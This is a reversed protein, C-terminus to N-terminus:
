ALADACREEVAKEDEQDQDKGPVEVEQVAEAVEEDVLVEVEVDDAADGMLVVAVDGVPPVVEADQEEGGWGPNEEVGDGDAGDEATM